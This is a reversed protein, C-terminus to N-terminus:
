DHGKTQKTRSRRSVVDRETVRRAAPDRVMDAKAVFGSM